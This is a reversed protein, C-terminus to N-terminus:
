PPKAECLRGRCADGVYRDELVDLLVIREDDSSAAWAATFAHFAFLSPWGPVDGLMESLTGYPLLPGLAELWAHDRVHQFRQQMSGDALVRRVISPKPLGFWCADDVHLRERTAVNKKCTACYAVTERAPSRQLEHNDGHYLRWAPNVYLPYADTM